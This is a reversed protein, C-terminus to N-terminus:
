MSSDPSLYTKVNIICERSSKIFKIEDNFSSILASKLVQKTDLFSRKCSPLNSLRKSVM